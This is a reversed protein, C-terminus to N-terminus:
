LFYWALIHAALACLNGLAHLLVPVAISGSKLFAWGLFFGAILNDPGPNGYVLHLAAFALGSAVIAGAPRAAAAVPPCLALRYITEEVLPAIVCMELLMPGLDAPNRRYVPLSYGLLSFLGIALGIIAAMLAGIWLTATAWWRWGQLPTLRLGLSDGDGRALFFCVVVAVLPFVLRVNEYGPRFHVLILDAAVVAGALAAAAALRPPSGTLRRGISTRM